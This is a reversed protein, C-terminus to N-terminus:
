PSPEFCIYFIRTTVFFLYGESDNQKVSKIKDDKRSVLTNTLRSSKYFHKRSAFFSMTFTFYNTQFLTVYNDFTDNLALYSQSYM